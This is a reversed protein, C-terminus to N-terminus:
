FRSLHLLYQRHIHIALNMQESALQLMLLLLITERYTRITGDDKLHFQRWAAAGIGGEPGGEGSDEVM